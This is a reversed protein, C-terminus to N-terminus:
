ALVKRKIIEELPVNANEAFSEPEIKYLSYDQELRKV